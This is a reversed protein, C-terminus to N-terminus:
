GTSAHRHNLLQYLEITQWSGEIKAYQHATGYHEFGCRDLVRRSALNTTQTEGQLRHLDLEDFARRILERLAASAIGRGACKQDVAYGVNASQFAGRVIGGLNMRGVLEGDLRILFLASRGADRERAARELRRRQGATTFYEDSRTPETPQFYTRNRVLFGAVEEADAPEAYRIRMGPQRLVVRL